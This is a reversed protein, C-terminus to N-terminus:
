GVGLHDVDSVRCCSRPFTATKSALLPCVDLVRVLSRRDDIDFAELEWIEYMSRACVYCCSPCRSDAVVPLVELSSGDSNTWCGM